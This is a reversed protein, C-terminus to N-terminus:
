GSSANTITGSFNVMVGAAARLRRIRAAHRAEVSHIRLAATLVARNSILNGAQGKYARVGTDEFAQAAALLVAKNTTATAFPGTGSGNGGTFDFSTASLDAPTGGLTGIQQRLFEVHAVEHKRIQDFTATETATLTARVPAFAANQAASTSVG